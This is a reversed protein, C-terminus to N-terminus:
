ERNGKLSAIADESMDNFGSVRTSKSFGDLPALASISPVGGPYILFLETNTIARDQLTSTAATINIERSGLFQKSLCTQFEQYQERTKVFDPEQYIERAIVNENSSVIAFVSVSDYGSEILVNFFPKSLRRWKSRLKTSTAANVNSFVIGIFVHAREGEHHEQERPNGSTYESKMKAPSLTTVGWKYKTSLPSPNLDSLNATSMATTYVDLIGNRRLFFSALDEKILRANAETVETKRTGFLGIPEISAIEKLQLDLTRVSLPKRGSNTIEAVSNPRLGLRDVEGLVEFRRGDKMVLAAAPTIGKLSEPKISVMVPAGDVDVESTIQTNLTSESLEIGEIPSYWPITRPPTLTLVHGMLERADSFNIQSFQDVTVMKGTNSSLTWGEASIGQDDNVQINFQLKHQNASSLDLIWRKGHPTKEMSAMARGEFDLFPIDVEQGELISNAIAGNLESLSEGRRLRKRVSEHGLEYEVPGAITRFRVISKPRIFQIQVIENEVRMKADFLACKSNENVHFECKSMFQKPIFLSGYKDVRLRGVDFATLWIDGRDLEDYFDTEDLGSTVIPNVKSDPQIDRAGVKWCEYDNLESPNLFSLRKLSDLVMYTTNTKPVVFFQNPGTSYNPVLKTDPRQTSFLMWDKHPLWLIAAEKKIEHATNRGGIINNVAHLNSTKGFHFIHLTLNSKTSIPLDVTENVIWGNAINKRVHEPLIFHRENSDRLIYFMGTDDKGTEDLRDSLIAYTTKELRSTITVYYNRAYNKAQRYDLAVIRGVDSQNDVDVVYLELQASASSLCMLQVIICWVFLKLM